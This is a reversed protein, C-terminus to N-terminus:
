LNKASIACHVAPTGRSPGAWPLVHAICHLAPLQSLVFHVHLRWGLLQLRVKIDCHSMVACDLPTFVPDYAEAAAAAAALLPLLRALLRAAALQYRIHAAGPQELSGLGYVVMSELCGIACRQPLRALQECLHRWFPAVALEGADDDVAAFYLQIQRATPQKSSPRVNCAM